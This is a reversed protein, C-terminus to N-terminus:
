DIDELWTLGQIVDKYRNKADQDSRDALGMGKMSREMTYGLLKTMRKKIDKASEPELSLDEVYKSYNAYFNQFTIMAYPNTTKKTRENIFSRLLDNKQIFEDTLDTMEKTHTLTGREFADHFAQIAHKAIYPFEPELKDIPFRHEM